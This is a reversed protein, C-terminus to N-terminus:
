ASCSDWMERPVIKVCVERRFRKGTAIQGHGRSRLFGRCGEDMRGEDQLTLFGEETYMGKKSKALYKEKKKQPFPGWRGKGEQIGKFKVGERKTMRGYERGTSGKPHLGALPPTKRTM